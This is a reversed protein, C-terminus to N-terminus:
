VLSKHMEYSYKFNFNQMHIYFYEFFNYQVVFFIFIKTHYM